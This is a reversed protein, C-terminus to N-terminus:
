RDSRSKFGLGVSKLDPARVVRGRQRWLLPVINASGRLRSSFVRDKNVPISFFLQKILGPGFPRLMDVCCIAINNPAVHKTRKAVKNRFTPHQQSLKSWNLSSGVIGLMNSCMAVRHGFVRLMNRGVINRCTANAHQSRKAPAKCTCLTIWFFSFWCFDM